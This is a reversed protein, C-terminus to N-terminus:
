GKQLGTKLIHVVNGELMEVIGELMELRHLLIRIMEKDQEVQCELLNLRSKFLKYENDTWFPYKSFDEQKQICEHCVTKNPTINGCKCTYEKHNM